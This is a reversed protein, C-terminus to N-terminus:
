VLKRAKGKVAAKLDGALLPGLRFQLGPFLGPEFWDTSGVEARCVYVGNVLESEEITQEGPDIIWYWLVGYREYDTFKRRQRRATDGPSLIEVCLDAPGYLRGRRRRRENEKTVFLVDPACVLDKMEDLVMDIDFSVKGLDHSRTWRKLLEGLDHALDQHQDTPRPCVVLEGYILEAKFEDPPGALYEEASM